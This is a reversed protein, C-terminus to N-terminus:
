TLWTYAVVSLASLLVGFLTGLLFVPWRPRDPAQILVERIVVNVPAEPEPEDDPRALLAGCRLCNVGDRPNLEGCDPCPLWARRSMGAVGPLRTRAMDSDDEVRTIVGRAFFLPYDCSECFGEATRVGEPDTNEFGCQPCLIRNM